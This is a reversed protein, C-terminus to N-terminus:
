CWLLAISNILNRHWNKQSINYTPHCHFPDLLHKVDLTQTVCAHQWYELEAHFTLDVALGSIHQKQPVPFLIDSKLFHRVGIVHANVPM